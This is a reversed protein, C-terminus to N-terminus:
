GVYDSGHVEAPGSGVSKESAIQVHLNTTSNCQSSLTQFHTASPQDFVAIPGVYM